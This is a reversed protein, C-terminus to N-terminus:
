GNCIHRHKPLPRPIWKGDVKILEGMGHCVSCTTRDAPGEGSGGCSSCIVPELEEENKSEIEKTHM